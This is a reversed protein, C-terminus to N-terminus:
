TLSLYNNDIAMQLNLHPKTQLNKLVFKILTNDSFTINKTEHDFDSGYFIVFRANVKKVWPDKGERLLNFLPGFPCFEMVICYCPSQTCVGRCM